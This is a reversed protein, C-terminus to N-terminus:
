KRGGAQKALGARWWDRPMGGDRNETKQPPTTQKWRRNVIYPATEAKDTDKRCRFILGLVANRTLGMRRGIVAASVGRATLDLVELLEADTAAARSM